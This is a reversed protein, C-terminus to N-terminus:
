LMVAGLFSDPDDMHHHMPDEGDERRSQMNRDEFWVTGYTITLEEGEEINRAAIYNIVLQERHIRFDLCPRSSHNFLSGVGLALLYDGKAHFIYHELTTFRLHNTYEQRSIFICHAAEVLEGRAIKRAAFVGRAVAEGTYPTHIIKHCPAVPTSLVDNRDM